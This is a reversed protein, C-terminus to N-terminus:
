RPATIPVDIPEFGPVVVSIQQVSEPPAPFKAWVNLKEGAKLSTNNYVSCVCGSDSDRVVLYKKRNSADILHTKNFTVTPPYGAQEGINALGLDSKRENSLLYRL